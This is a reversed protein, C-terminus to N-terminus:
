ARPDDSTISGYAHLSYDSDRVDVERMRRELDALDKSAALYPDIAINREHSIFRDVTHHLREFM